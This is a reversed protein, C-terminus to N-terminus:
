IILMNLAQRLAQYWQKGAMVKTKILPSFRGSWVSHYKHIRKLLFQRTETAEDHGFSGAIKESKEL